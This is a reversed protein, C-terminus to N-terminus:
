VNPQARLLVSGDAVAQLEISKIRDPALNTSGVITADQGPYVGWLRGEEIWGDFGDGADGRDDPFDVVVLGDDRRGDFLLGGGGGFDSAADGLGRVAGGRDGGVEVRDRAGDGRGGFAHALCLSGSGFEGAEGGFETLNYRGEM